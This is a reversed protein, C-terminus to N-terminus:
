RTSLSSCVFAERAIEIGNRQSYSGISTSRLDIELVGTSNQVVESFPSLSVAMSLLHEEYSGMLEPKFLLFCYLPFASTVIVGARCLRFALPAVSKEVVSPM